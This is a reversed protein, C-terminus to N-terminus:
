ARVPLAAVAAARSRNLWAPIVFTAATIAAVVAVMALPSTKAAFWSLVGSLLICVPLTFRTTPKVLGESLVGTVTVLKFTSGPEYTDTM